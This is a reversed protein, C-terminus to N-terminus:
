GRRISFFISFFSRRICKLHNKCDFIKKRIRNFNKEIQERTGHLGVAIGNGYASIVINAQETTNTM